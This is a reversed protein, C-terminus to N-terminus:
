EQGARIRTKSEAGLDGRGNRRTRLRCRERRKVRHCTGFRGRIVSLNLLRDWPAHGPRERWIGVKGMVERSKWTTMAIMAMRTERSKGATWAALSAALLAWHM